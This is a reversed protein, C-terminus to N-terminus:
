KAKLFIKRVSCHQYDQAPLIAGDQGSPYVIVPLAHNPEDQGSVSSVMYYVPKDYSGYSGVLLKKPFGYSFFTGYSLQVHRLSIYPWFFAYPGVLFAYPGPM